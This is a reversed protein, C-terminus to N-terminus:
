RQFGVRITVSVGPHLTCVAGQSCSRSSNEEDAECNSTQEDLKTFWFLARKRILVPKLAFRSVLQLSSSPLAVPGDNEILHPSM